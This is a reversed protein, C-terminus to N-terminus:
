TNSRRLYELVRQESITRAAADERDVKIRTENPAVGRRVYEAQRQQRIRQRRLKLTPPDASHEGDLSAVIPTISGRCASKEPSSDGLLARVWFKIAAYWHLFTNM